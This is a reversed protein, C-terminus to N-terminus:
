HDYICQDLTVIARISGTEDAQDRGCVGGDMVQDQDITGLEMNNQVEGHIDFRVMKRDSAGIQTAVITDVSDPRVVVDVVVFYLVGGWGWGFFFWESVCYSLYCVAVFADGYLAGGM